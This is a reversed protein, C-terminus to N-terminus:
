FKVIEQGAGQHQAPYQNESVGDWGGAILRRLVGADLAMGFKGGAAKVPHFGVTPNPRDVLLVVDRAVLTVAAVRRGRFFLLGMDAHEAGAIGAARYIEFVYGWGTAFAVPALEVLERLTEM